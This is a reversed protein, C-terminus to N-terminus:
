TGQELAAVKATLQQVAGILHACISRLDVGSPGDGTPSDLVADPMIERVQQAIYGVDWHRPSDGKVGSTMEFQHLSIDNIAGLCDREIARIDSKWRIDCTSLNVWGQNGGDIIFFPAGASWIFGVFNSGGVGDYRIGVSNMLSGAYFQGAAAQGNCQINGFVGVYQFNVSQGQIAIDGQYGNNVYCNINGNWGFGIWATGNYLMGPSGFSASGSTFTGANVTGGSTISNCQIHDCYVWNSIRADGGNVWLGGPVSVNNGGDIFLVRGQDGRDVYIHVYGDWYFGFSNAFGYTQLGNFNLHVQGGNSYIDGSATIAGICNTTNAWLDIVNANVNGPALISFGSQPGYFNGVCSVSGGASIGAGTNLTGAVSVNSAASLQQAVTLAGACAVTNAFLGITALNAGAAASVNFFTSSAGLVAGNINLSGGPVSINQGVINGSVTLNKTVTLNGDKTSDGTLPMYTSSLNGGSQVPGMTFWDTSVYGSVSAQAVACLRLQAPVASTDLWWKGLHATGNASSPPLPGESCELDHNLDVAVLRDKTIYPYAAPPPVPAPLPVSTIECPSVTNAGPVGVPPLSLTIDLVGQYIFRTNPQLYVGQLVYQTSPILGTDDALLALQNNPNLTIQTNLITTM